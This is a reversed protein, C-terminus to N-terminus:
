RVFSGGRKSPYASRGARTLGLLKAAASQNEGTIELAQRVLDKQLTEVQKRTLDAHITYVRVIKVDEVPIGLDEVVNSKVSNGAADPLEPRLGVEIRYTKLESMNEKDSTGSSVTGKRM